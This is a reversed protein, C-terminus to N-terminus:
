LSRDACTPVRKLTGTAPVRILTGSVPVRILTGIVPVRILTSTALVRILTGPLPIGSRQAVKVAKQLTACRKLTPLNVVNNPHTGSALSQNNKTKQVRQMERFIFLSLPAGPSNLIEVANKFHEDDLKTMARLKEILEHSM